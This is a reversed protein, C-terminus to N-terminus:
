RALRLLVGSGRALDIDFSSGAPSWTRAQANFRETPAPATVHIKRDRRYDLNVVMLHTPRGPADFRTVLTTDTLEQGPKLEAVPTEPEIKLLAQECYPTTGPAHLGQLYAGTFKLPSLEKSIAIFERNLTKLVKYKASPTGNTSVISGEHGRYCYVYYYIGHAGYAATTYVLYRMEDPGPIRPSRPSAAQGPTWTCAQVGNFFPVNLASASQRIIGLNLLYNSTDGGNQFQYHDYTLFSPRYIEGFLRVHEWYARIIEGEVGLQKNNAYTPLLNVWVAHDPDHRAFWEKTRALSAFMGAAPEDYLEYVYLAPHNKVRKVMAEMASAAAPDDINLSIKRDCLEKPKYIARMGYKAALDLEAPTMAWVTNFGGEKLQALWRDSLREALPFGPGAWYTTVPEGPNWDACVTLTSGAAMATLLRCTRSKILKM